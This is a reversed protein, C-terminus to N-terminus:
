NVNLYRSFVEDNDSKVICAMAKRFDDVNEDDINSMKYKQLMLPYHVKRTENMPKFKDVELPEFPENVQKQGKAPPKIIKVPVFSKKQQM